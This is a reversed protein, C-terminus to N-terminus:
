KLINGIPFPVNAIKTFFLYLGIPLLVAVPILTKFKREGYLLALGLLAIISSIIIGLPEIMIYYGLLGAMVIYPKSTALHSQNITGSIKEEGMDSYGKSRLQLIWAIGAMLLSLSILSACLFGPWFDPRLSVIKISSPVIVARPLIIFLVISFAVAMGLGLYIDKYIKTM